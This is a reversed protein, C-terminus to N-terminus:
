AAGTRSLVFRTVCALTAFNDPIYDLPEVEIRYASELFDVLELLVMSSVIGWLPEDLGLRDLERRSAPYRDALFARVRAAVRDPSPPASTM